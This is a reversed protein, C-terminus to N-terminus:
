DKRERVVFTSTSSAFDEILERLDAFYRGHTLRLAEKDQAQLLVVEHDIKERNLTVELEIRVNEAQTRESDIFERITVLRGSPRDYELLFIM